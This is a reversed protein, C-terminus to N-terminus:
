LSRGAADTRQWDDAQPQAGIGGGCHRRGHRGPLLARGRLISDGIVSLKRERAPDIGYAAAGYSRPGNSAIVFGTARPAGATIDPLATAKAMLAAPNEITRRIDPDDAYGPPQIQAFGDFLRLVSERMTNYSGQQLALVFITVLCAFVISVFSLVTRHPHRWLNRWALGALLHLQGFSRLM